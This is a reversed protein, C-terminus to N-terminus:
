AIKNIIKSSYQLRKMYQQALDASFQRIRKYENLAKDLTDFSKDIQADLNFVKCRVNFKNGMKRICAIQSESDHRAHQSSLFRNILYPIFVCTEASYVKKNKKALLDKDLHLKIGADELDYRYNEDYWRKFNSFTLWEEAVTCEEYCRDHKKNYCRRLMNAWAKYQKENGKYQLDNIGVGEIKM